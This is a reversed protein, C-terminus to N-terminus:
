SEDIRNVQKMLHDTASAAAAAVAEDTNMNEYHILFILLWAITVFDSALFFWFIFFVWFRKIGLIIRTRYNFNKLYAVISVWEAYVFVVFLSNM